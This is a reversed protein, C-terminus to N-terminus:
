LSSIRAFITEIGDRITLAKHWHEPPDNSVVRWRKGWQSHPPQEWNCQTAVLFWIQDLPFGIGTLVGERAEFNENVRTRSWGMQTKCEIAAVPQDDLWVSVDPRMRGVMREAYVELPSKRAELYARLLMATTEVQAHDLSQRVSKRAARKVAIHAATHAALREMWLRTWGDTPDIEGRSSADAASQISFSIHAALDNLGRTYLDIM